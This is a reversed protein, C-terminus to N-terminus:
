LPPKEKFQNGKIKKLIIYRMIRYHHERAEIINAKTIDIPIM